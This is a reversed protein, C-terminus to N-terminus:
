AEVEEKKEKMQYRSSGKKSAYEARKAKGKVFAREFVTAYTEMEEQTISGDRALQLDRAKTEPHRLGCRYGAKAASCSTCTQVPIYYKGALEYTPTLCMAIWGYTGSNSRVEIRDIVIYQTTKGCGRTDEGEDCAPKVVGDGFKALIKEYVDMTEKPDTWTCGKVTIM